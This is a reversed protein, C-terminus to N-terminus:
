NTAFFFLQTTYVSAVFDGIVDWQKNGHYTRKSPQTCWTSTHMNTYLVSYISEVEHLLLDPHTGTCARARGCQLRQLALPSPPHKRPVENNTGKTFLTQNTLKEFAYVPMYWYTYLPNQVLPPFMCTYLWIDSDNIRQHFTSGCICSQRLPSM